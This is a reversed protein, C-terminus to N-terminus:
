IHYIGIKSINKEKIDIIKLANELFETKIHFLLNIDVKRHEPFKMNNMLWRDYTCTHDDILSYVVSAEDLNGKVETIGDSKIVSISTKISNSYLVQFMVDFCRALERFVGTPSGDLTVIKVYNESLWDASYCLNSVGWYRDRWEFKEIAGYAALRDIEVELNINSEDFEENALEKPTPLVANFNFSTKKGEVLKRLGSIATKNGFIKVVNKGHQPHMRDM